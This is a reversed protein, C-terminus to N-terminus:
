PKKRAALEALRDSEAHVQDQLSKLRRQTREILVDRAQEWSDFKRYYGADKRERREQGGSTRVFVCKDTERIVDVETIDDGYMGIQYKKM